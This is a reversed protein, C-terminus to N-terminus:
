NRDHNQPIQKQEKKSSTLLGFFGFVAMTQFVKRTKHNKAWIRGLQGILILYKLNSM